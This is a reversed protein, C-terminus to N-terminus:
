LRLEQYPHECPQLDTIWMRRESLDMVVSTVTLSREAPALTPDPHRCIANPYQDHDRLAAQIKELTLPRAARLLAGLRCHRKESFHRRPNPPQEVGTREPDVFHNAHVLVGEEAELRSLREPATELDLIRDPAQGLLFNTSCSRAPETVVRVADDLARKRLIEYCRVHFPKRLRSWDDETSLLGNIGLGLGESNLGIKGGVIGAQTFSLSRMGDPDTSHLVAGQVDPIWDWNQGLWLHGNEAAEPAIAFATCGDGEEMANRTWRDYLLEYRVNLATVFDADLGSGEIVGRLGEAYDGNSEAIVRRYARARERVEDPSVGVESQFRALYVEINRAIRDRLAEGHALGQQYPSGTLQLVPLSM